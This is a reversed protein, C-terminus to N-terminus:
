APIQPRLADFHDFHTLLAVPDNNGWEMAKTPSKVATAAVKLSHYTKSQNKVGSVHRLYIDTIQDAGFGIPLECGVVGANLEFL